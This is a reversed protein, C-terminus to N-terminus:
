PLTSLRLSGHECATIWRPEERRPPLFRVTVPFQAVVPKWDVLFPRYRWHKKVMKVAMKRLEAPGAVPRLNCIKGRRDVTVLVVVRQVEAFRTMSAPLEVDRKALVHSAATKEDMWVVPGEPCTAGNLRVVAM